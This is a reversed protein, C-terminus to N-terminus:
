VESAAKEIEDLLVVVFPQRRLRRIFDSVEGDATMVLRQAAGFGAYESMDLRVLRDKMAGAGFLYRALAKAMETKGVGTPGCFLLVGLPRKPDNLGTKLATVVGAAVQCAAPQGLVSEQ